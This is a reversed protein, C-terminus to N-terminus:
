GGWSPVVINVTKVDVELSEESVFRWLEPRESNPLETITVKVDSDGGTLAPINAKLLDYVAKYLPRNYGRRAPASAKGYASLITKSIRTKEDASRFASSVRAEVTLPLEAIVPTYFEVKYSDDAALIAKKIAKQTETLDAKPIKDPQVQEGAAQYKVPEQGDAALVAVFLTNMNEIKAGRVLEEQAENWVCCFQLSPFKKRVLADFEGLFVANDSYTSPYRAMERLTDMSIPDQGRQIVEVVKIKAGAELSNSQYDLSFPSGAEPTMDGRCYGIALNLVAGNEPQVGVVNKYGLRVYVRQQDDTEVHFIRDGAAANTYRDRWEYTGEKDYLSISSLYSDDDAEPVEIDYFPRTDQVTHTIVTTSGQRASALVSGGAPSTVAAELTYPNGGSDFMVRGADLNLESLGPNDILLQVRVGDARPIIGRMAADALVTAPRTKNFPELSAAEVQQSLMSFMRSIAGLHQTIRPDGVRYLASLKPYNDLDNLAAAMFEEATLM